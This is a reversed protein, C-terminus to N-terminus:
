NIITPTPVVSLQKKQETMKQWDIYEEYLIILATM